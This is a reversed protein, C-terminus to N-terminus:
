EDVCLEPLAVAITKRVGFSMVIYVFLGDTTAFATKPRNEMALSIQHFGQRHKLRQFINRELWQKGVVASQKAGKKKQEPATGL